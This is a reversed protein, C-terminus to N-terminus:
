ERLQEAQDRRGGRAYDTSDTWQLLPSSDLGVMRRHNIGWLLTHVWSSGCDQTVGPLPVPWRCGGPGWRNEWDRSAPRTSPAQSDGRHTWRSGFYCGLSPVEHRNKGEEQLPSGM